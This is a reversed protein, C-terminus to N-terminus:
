DSLLDLILVAYLNKNTDVCTFQNRQFRNFRPLKIFGIDVAYVYQESVSIAWDGLFVEANQEWASNVVINETFFSLHLRAATLVSTLINNLIIKCIFKSSRVDFQLCMM